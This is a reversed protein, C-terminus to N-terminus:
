ENGRLSLSKATTIWAGKRRLPSKGERGEGGRGGRGGEDIELIM